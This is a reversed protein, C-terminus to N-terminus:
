WRDAADLPPCAGRPGQRSVGEQSIEPLPRRRLYRDSHLGYQHFLSLFRRSFLETPAHGTRLRGYVVAADAGNRDGRRSDRDFDPRAAVPRRYGGTRRLFRDARRLDDSGHAGAVREASREAAFRRFLADLDSHERAGHLRFQAGFAEAPRFRQHRGVTGHGHDPGDAAFHADRRHHRGDLQCEPGLFGRVDRIDAGTLNTGRFDVGRCINDVVEDQLAGDEGADFRDRLFRRLSDFPSGSANNRTMM